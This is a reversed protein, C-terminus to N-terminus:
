ENRIIELAFKLYRRALHQDTAQLGAFPEDLSLRDALEGVEEDDAEPHLPSQQVQLLHLEQRIREITSPKLAIPVLDEPM